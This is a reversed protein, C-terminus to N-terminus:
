VAGSLVTLYVSFDRNCKVIGVDIGNEVRSIERLAFLHARHGCHICCTADSQMKARHLDLNASVKM